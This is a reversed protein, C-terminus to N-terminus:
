AKKGRAFGIGALGIGMLALTAPEPVSTVTFTDWSIAITLRSGPAEPNYTDTLLTGVLDLGVFYDPGSPLELDVIGSSPPTPANISAGFFIDRIGFGAATGIDYTANTLFGSGYSDQFLTGSGLDLDNRVGASGGITLSVPAAGDIAVSGSVFSDEFRYTAQTGYINVSIPSASSDITYTLSVDSNSIGFFPVSRNKPLCPL